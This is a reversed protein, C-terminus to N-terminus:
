SIFSLIYNAKTKLWKEISLDIKELSESNHDKFDM